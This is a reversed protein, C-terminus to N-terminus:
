GCHQVISVFTECDVLFLVVMSCIPWSVDNEGWGELLEHFWRESYVTSKEAHFNSQLLRESADFHIALRWLLHMGYFTMAKTRLFLSFFQSKRKMMEFSYYGYKELMAIDKSKLQPTMHVEVGRRLFWGIKHDEGMGNGCLKRKM